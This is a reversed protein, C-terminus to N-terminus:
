PSATRRDRGIAQSRRLVATQHRLAELEREVAPLNWILAAIRALRGIVPLDFVTGNDTQVGLRILVDRKSVDGATLRATLAAIEERVPQRGALRLAARVFDEGYLATMPANLEYDEDAVAAIEAALTSEPVKDILGRHL